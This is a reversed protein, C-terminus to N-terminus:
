AMNLDAPMLNWTGRSAMGIGGLTAAVAQEQMLKLEEEQAKVQQDRLNQEESRIMQDTVPRFGLLAPAFSTTMSGAMRLQNLRDRDRVPDMRFMRRGVVDGVGRGVLSLGLGLALDEAALPLGWGEPATLGARAAFALDPGFDLAYDFWSDPKVSQWARNIVSSIRPGAFRM